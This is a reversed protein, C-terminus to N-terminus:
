QFIEKEFKEIALKRNEDAQQQLTKIEKEMKSITEAIKKQIKLPPLPFLIKKLNNVGLETQKTSRASKINEIQKQGYDSNFLYTFFIPNIKEKNVRLLLMHSDYILGTFDINVCSARGITGEGTSNILIDGEKTFFIEEINNFWNKNVTKSYELKIENWRNCKQNLIFSSSNNEYLPGKGRFINISLSSDITFSTLNFKNSVFSSMNSIKNIGWEYLIKYSVFQLGQKNEKEELKQIGLVNFLYSEIDQEIQNTQHEQQEALQIRKNHVEVMRNQEELPALPIKIESLLQDPKIYKRNTTGTVYSDMYSNIKKSKFLIQLYETNIIDTNIEAFTMNSSAVGKALLEDIIGFAGNKTDVKCWFLHNEKAIQYTRMKLTNGRVVRNIFAGKGYSRVGLIKYEQNDNIKVKQINAKSLFKGFLVFPISQKFVNKLKFFFKVDWINLENYSIFKLCSEKITSTKGM